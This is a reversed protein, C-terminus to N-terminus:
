GGTSVPDTGDGTSVTIESTVDDHVEGDPDITSDYICAPTSGDKKDFPVCAAFRPRTTIFTTLWRPDIGILKFVPEFAMNTEVVLVSDGEPMFPIRGRQANISSNSHALASGTGYSWAVEYKDDTADYIVSSVRIWTPERSTTLYDFLDNLGEIYDADVANTQRSILDAITYAAKLNINKQRYVDFFSFSAMYWWFLFVSAILGEAAMNGASDTAFARLRIRLRSLISM